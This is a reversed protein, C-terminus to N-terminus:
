VSQILKILEKIFSVVVDSPTVVELAVDLFRKCAEDLCHLVHISIGLLLLRARHDDNGFQTQIYAVCICIQITIELSELVSLLCNCGAIFADSTQRLFQILWGGGVRHFLGFFVPQEIFTMDLKVNLTELRLPLRVLLEALEFIGDSLILNGLRNNLFVEVRAVLHEGFDDLLDGCGVNLELAM